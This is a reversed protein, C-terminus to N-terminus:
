IWNRKAAKYITEIRSTANLTAEAEKIRRRVTRDSIGMKKAIEQDSLGIAVLEVVTRIEQPFTDGASPLCLGLPKATKWISEFLAQLALVVATGRHVVLGLMGNDPNLPLVAFRKDAIIMRVPLAEVTRVQSGRENLWDVHNRTAKDNRISSLYITRSRVGRAYMQENRKQTAAIQEKTHAGGPSFTCTEYLTQDQFRLLRKNLEDGQVDFWEVEPLL